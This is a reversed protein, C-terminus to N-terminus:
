SSFLSHQFVLDAPLMAPPSLIGCPLSGRCTLAVYLSLSSSCLHNQAASRLSSHADSDGQSRMLIFLDSTSGLQQQLKQQQDLSRVKLQLICLLTHLLQSTFPPPCCLLESFLPGLGHWACSFALELLEPARFHKRTWAVHM